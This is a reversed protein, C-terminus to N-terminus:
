ENPRRRRAFSGLALLGTGILVYSMPESTTAPLAGEVGSVALNGLAQGSDGTVTGYPGPLSVSFSQGVLSDATSGAIEVRSDAIQCYSGSELGDAPPLIVAAQRAFGNAAAVSLIITFLLPRNM